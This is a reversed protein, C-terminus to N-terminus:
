NDSHVDCKPSNAIHMMKSIYNNYKFSNSIDLAYIFLKKNGYTIYYPISTNIVQLSAFCGWTSGIKTISELMEPLM